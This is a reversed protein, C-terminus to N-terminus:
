QPRALMHPFGEVTQAAFNLIIGLSILQPKADPVDPMPGVDEEATGKCTLMLTGMPEAAVATSLGIALIMALKM